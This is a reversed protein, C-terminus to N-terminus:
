IWVEDNLKLYEQPESLSYKWLKFDNYFGKLIWLTFVSLLTQHSNQWRWVNRDISLWFLSDDSNIFVALMCCVFLLCVHFLGLGYIPTRGADRWSCRLSYDGSPLEGQRGWLAAWPSTWLMPCFCPRITCPQWAAPQSCSQEGIFSYYQNVLHYDVVSTVGWSTM